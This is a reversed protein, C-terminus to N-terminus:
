GSSSHYYNGSSLTDRTLQLYEHLASRRRPRKAKQKIPAQTRASDFIHLRQREGVGKVHRRARQPCLCSCSTTRPLLIARQFLPQKRLLQRHLLRHKRQSLLAIAAPWERPASALAWWWRYAVRGGASRFSLNVIIDRSRLTSSSDYCSPPSPPSCTRGALSPANQSSVTVLANVRGRRSSTPGRHARMAWNRSRAATRNSLPEFANASWPQLREDSVQFVCDGLYWHVALPRGVARSRAWRGHCGRGASTVRLYVTGPWGSKASSAVARLRDDKTNQRLRRRAVRACYSPRWSRGILSLASPCQDSSV